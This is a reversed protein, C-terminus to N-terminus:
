LMAYVILAAIKTRQGVSMARNCFLLWPLLILSGTLIMGLVLGYYISSISNTIAGQLYALGQPLSRVLEEPLTLLSSTMQECQRHDEYSVCIKRTGITLNSPIISSPSSHIRGSFGLPDVSRDKKVDVM